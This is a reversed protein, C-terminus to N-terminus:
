SQTKTAPAEKSGLAEEVALLALTYIQMRRLGSMTFWGLEAIRTWFWFIIVWGMNGIRKWLTIVAFILLKEACCPDSKSIGKSMAAKCSVLCVALDCWLKEKNRLFAPKLTRQPLGCGNLAAFDALWVEAPRFPLGPPTAIIVQLWIGKCNTGGPLQGILFLNYWEQRQIWPM